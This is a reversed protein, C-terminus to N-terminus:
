IIAKKILEHDKNAEITYIEYIEEISASIVGLQAGIRGLITEDWEALTENYGFEVQQSRTDCYKQVKLLYDLNIPKM